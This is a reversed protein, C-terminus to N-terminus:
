FKLNFTILKNNNYIPINNQIENQNTQTKNTKFSNHLILPVASGIIAGAVVDTIFHRGAELRLIGITTALGISTSWVINKQTQNGEYMLGTLIASTFALSTHGSYFSLKADKTQKKMLDVDLNYVYPRAREVISKTLFNLSITTALSTLYFKDYGNEMKIINENVLMPAVTLSTLLFDSLESNFDSYNSISYKDFSQLKEGSTHLTILSDIEAITLNDINHNLILATTFNVLNIGNIIEFSNNKFNYINEQYTQSFSFNANVLFIILALKLILYTRIKCVM